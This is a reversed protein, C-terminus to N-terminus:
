ERTKHTVGIVTVVVLRHSRADRRRRDAERRLDEQGRLHLLWLSRERNRDRRNSCISRELADQRSERPDHTLQAVHCLPSVIPGLNWPRTQCGYNRGKRWAPSIAVCPDAGPSAGAHSFLFPQVPRWRDDRAVAANRRGTKCSWKLKQICLQFLLPHPSVCTLCSALGFACM